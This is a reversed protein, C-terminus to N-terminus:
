DWELSKYYNDGKCTWFSYTYINGSRLRVWVVNHEIERCLDKMYSKHVMKYIKNWIEVPLYPLDM